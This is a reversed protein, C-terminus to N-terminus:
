EMSELIIEVKNKYKEVEDFDSYYSKVGLRDIYKEAGKGLIAVV